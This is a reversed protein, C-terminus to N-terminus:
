IIKQSTYVKRKVDSMPEHAKGVMSNQPVPANADIAPRKDLNSIHGAKM